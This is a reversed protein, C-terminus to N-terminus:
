QSAAPPQPNRDEFQRQHWYPYPLPLASAEDLKAVQEATLKWGEAGLNQKLQAEDRAGIIVSSITSKRLLWNLAIQAVTKGTQSAVADIADVVKYLYDDSVQPGNEATKHVRSVDPM